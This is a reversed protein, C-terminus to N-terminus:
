ASRRLLVIIEGDEPATGAFNNVIGTARTELHALGCRAAHKLAEQELPHRQNGVQLAFVSGPMLASAVREIMVGYFRANWEAFTKYRKYSQQSGTYKETDFYPPSTLAFDFKSGDLDADEFCQERTEIIKDPVYPQLDEALLRVGRYTEPSPDFGLYSQAHSLLFGVARGGWGHCPDLVSGNDPCFENILAAALEARFDAPQRCGYAPLGAHLLHEWSPSDHSFFRMRAVDIDRDGARLKLLDLVSGDDGATSIRHPNHALTASLPFRKQYYLAQLFHIKAANRSVGVSVVKLPKLLKLAELCDACWGRWADDLLQEARENKPQQEDPETYERLEDADFGTLSLDYDFARLDEFELGLLEEDWEAWTVSRNVMLRFAKVQAESWEDCLIVPLEAIDLREAAKLRLHGDVVTGDSRALMPIKFGFERISAAMREVAHNNKRPNRAYPIFRSTPWLEIRGTREPTDLAVEM